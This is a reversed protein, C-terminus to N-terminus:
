ENKTEGKLKILIIEWGSLRKREDSANKKPIPIKGKGMYKWFYVPLKNEVCFKKLNFEIIYTENKPSILKYTKSTKKMTEYRKKQTIENQLKMKESFKKKEEVSKNSKTYNIKDNIEKMKDKSINNRSDSMKKKTEESHKYGVRSKYVTGVSGGGEKMNSLSGTNINRRGIIKIMKIEYDFAEQETLGKNYSVTYRKNKSLRMIKRIINVKLTNEDERLYSEMLHTLARKGQGKGVYFPEYNFKYPKGDPNKYIFRWPKLPNLLIYCYFRNPDKKSTNM